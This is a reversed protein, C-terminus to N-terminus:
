RRLKRLAQRLSVLAGLVTIGLGIIVVIIGPGTDSARTPHFTVRYVRFEEALIGHQQVLLAILIPALALAWMHFFRPRWRVSALAFLGAVIMLVAYVDALSALAGDRTGERIAAVSLGEQYYWPMLSGAIIVGSGAIALLAGAITAV